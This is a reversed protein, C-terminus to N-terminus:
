DLDWVRMWSDKGVDLFHANGSDAMYMNVPAVIEACLGGSYDLTLGYGNNSAVRLLDTTEGHEVVFCSYGTGCDFNSRQIVEGVMHTVQAFRDEYRLGEEDIPRVYVPNGSGRPTWGDPDEALRMGSQGSYEDISFAVVDGISPQEETRIPVTAWGDAAYVIYHRDYLWDERVAVITADIVMNGEGWSGGGSPSIREMLELVGADYSTDYPQDTYLAADIDGTWSDPPTCPGYDVDADSDADTDADTDADSDADTDTDTDSDADADTDTDAEEVCDPSGECDSDDCDYAGDSDNDAGDACEGPFQGETREEEGCSIACALAVTTILVRM